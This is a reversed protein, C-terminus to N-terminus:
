PEFIFMTSQALPEFETARVLQGVCVCYELALVVVSSPENHLRLLLGRSRMNM